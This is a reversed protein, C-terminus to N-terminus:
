MEPRREGHQNAENGMLLHRRPNGCMLCDIRRGDGAEVGDVPLDVPPTGPRQRNVRLQFLEETGVDGDMTRVGVAPVGKRRPHVEVRAICGVACYAAARSRRDRQWYGALLEIAFGVLPALWAVMLLNRLIEGTAQHDPATM